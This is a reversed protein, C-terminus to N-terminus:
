IPTSVFEGVERCGQVLGTIMDQATRENFRVQREYIIVM